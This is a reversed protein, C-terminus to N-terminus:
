NTVYRNQPIHLGLNGRLTDSEYATRFLGREQLIPVVQTLFDDMGFPGFPVLMFGDAAGAEFWEQVTDAVQEPTGMFPSRPTTAELALQRLTIGSKLAETFNKLSGQQAPVLDLLNLAPEDLPYQTLDHHNFFRSTYKLADTITVLSAMEQYKQEAEEATRGVVPAISPFVLIDDASRGFTEARRRMDERFAISETITKPISYIADAQEAAFNRGAESTGAQFIVPQGQPSREISLPGKVSFYEGKHNLTHMKAPDFFVGSEKDRVFADEEWSSWLGKTVELFEAALRYKADHEIQKENYNDAAGDLTGSTVVNWGARGGSIKDLTGFQRALTFPESFTSSVTGVLGINSTVAALASLLSVPEFRNLFHPLSQETIYLGDAIFIADLLASEAKKAWQKYLEFNVSADPQADPHRWESISDGVGRLNVALKIQKRSM